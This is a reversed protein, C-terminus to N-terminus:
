GGMWHPSIVAVLIDCNDFIGKIYNRFDVGVPTSDYDLFVVSKEKSDANAPNEYHNKLRDFIRGTIWGTDERRYSIAIGAMRLEFQNAGSSCVVLQFFECGDVDM